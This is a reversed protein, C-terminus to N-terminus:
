IAITIHINDIKGNEGIFPKQSNFVLFEWFTFEESGAKGVLGVTGEPAIEKYILWLQAM